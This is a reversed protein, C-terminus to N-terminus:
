AASTQIFPLFSPPNVPANRRPVNSTVSSTIAPSFASATRTEGGGCGPMGCSCDILAPGPSLPPICTSSPGVNAAVSPQSQIGPMRSRSCPCRAPRSASPSPATSIPSRFTIVVSGLASRLSASMSISAGSSSCLCRPPPRRVSPWSRRRSPSSARADPRRALCHHPQLGASNACSRLQLMRAQPPRVAVAIRRQVRELHREADPPFTSRPSASRIRCSLPSSRAKARRHPPVDAARPPAASGSTRRPAAASRRFAGPCGRLDVVPRRVLQQRPLRKRVPHPVGPHLRQLRARLSRRRDPGTFASPRPRVQHDLHVAHPDRRAAAVPAHVVHQLPHADLVQLRIEPQMAVRVHVHDAVPHALVRLFAEVRQGVLVTQHHPVVEPFRGLVVVQFGFIGRQKQRVRAIRDQAVPM